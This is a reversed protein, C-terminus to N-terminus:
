AARPEASWDRPEPKRPEGCPVIAPGATPVLQAPWPILGERALHHRRRAQHWEHVTTAPGDNTDECAVPDVRPLRDTLHWLESVARSRFREVALNLALLEREISSSRIAMAVM